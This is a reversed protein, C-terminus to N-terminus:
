APGEDPAERQAHNFERSVHRLAMAFRIRSIPRDSLDALEANWEEIFAAAENADDLDLSHGARRVQAAVVLDVFDRIESALLAKAILSVL